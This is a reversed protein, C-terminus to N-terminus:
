TAARSIHDETVGDVRNHSEATTSVVYIDAGAPLGEESKLGAM